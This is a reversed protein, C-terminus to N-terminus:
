APAKRPGDDGISRAAQEGQKVCDGVSVGHLYNGVLTLGEIRDVLSEIRGVLAAHGLNYQPIARERRTLSIVEPEGSIGFVSQLESHIGSVLEADPLNIASPNRAGGTFVTLLLKGAPARNPFLGSNFVCGLTKLGESPAALFGFGEVPRRFAKRDYSLSAIAISPYEIQRLLSALEGSSKELISASIGAPTALVIRECTIERGDGLRATIRGESERLADKDLGITIDSCGTILDEGIRAALTDTLFSMGRKFSCLRKRKPGTAGSTAAPAKKEKRAERMKAVAGRVLGGYKSELNALRPFAAQVSLREHNGAYIGSVFPAVLRDAVERGIRRAAFSAVSEESQAVRQPVFPEAMLRLKGRLSLLRSTAFSVPGTPVRHLRGHFYVFAPAKPDGEVLEDQIGLEEVLSLFEETGQTSNPGREILYGNISESKIVGGPRISKEILLVDLGLSKLRYACVLGCIGAGIVVVDKRRDAM